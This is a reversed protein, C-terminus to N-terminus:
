SFECAVNGKDYKGIIGCCTICFNVYGKMGFKEGFSTAITVYPPNATENYGVVRGGTLRKFPGSKHCYIGDKYHFLDEYSEFTVAIPGKQLAAKLEEITNIASYKPCKCVHEEWKGKKCRKPCQETKNVFPYCEENVLGNDSVYKVSWQAWGGACGYNATDCTLLEMASLWGYDKGAMCCRDSIMGAVAFAYSGGICTLHDKISHICDAKPSARLDFSPPLINSNDHTPQILPFSDDTAIIPYPEAMTLDDETFDKFINDEYDMVGWTVTKKLHEVMSKKILKEACLALGFALCLLLLNGKM